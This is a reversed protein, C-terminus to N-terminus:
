WYWVLQVSVSPGASVYLEPTASAAGGFETGDAGVPLAIASWLQLNEQLDNQFVVQALASPDQLNVFINPTLLFLPTVEIMASLALYHRGLNFLEGRAVRKYLDPNEALVPTLLM